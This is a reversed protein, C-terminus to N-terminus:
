SYYYYNASISLSKKRDNIQDVIGLTKYIKTKKENQNM